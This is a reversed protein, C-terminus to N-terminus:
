SIDVWPFSPPTYQRFPYTQNSAGTATSLLLTIKTRSYGEVRKVRFFTRKRSNINNLFDNLLVEDRIIRAGDLAGDHILGKFPLLDVDEQGITMRPTPTSVDASFKEGTISCPVGEYTTGLYTWTADHKLYISGGTVPQIQYLRVKGDARLKHADAVQSPPIVGPM